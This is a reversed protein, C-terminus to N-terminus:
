LEKLMRVLVCVCVYVFVGKKWAIKEGFGGKKRVGNRYYGLFDRSYCLDGALERRSLGKERVSMRGNFFRVRARM